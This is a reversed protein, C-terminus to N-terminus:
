RSGQEARGALAELDRGLTMLEEDTSPRRGALMPAVDTEPLGGARALASPVDPEEGAARLRRSLRAM